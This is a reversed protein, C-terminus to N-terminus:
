VYLAKLPVTTWRSMTSLAEGGWLLILPTTSGRRGPWILLFYFRGGGTLQPSSTLGSWRFSPAGLFSAYDWDGRNQPPTPFYNGGAARTLHHPHNYFEGWLSQPPTIHFGGRKFLIPPHPVGLGRYSQPNFFRGGKLHPIYVGGGEQYSSHMFPSFSTLVLIEVWNNDLPSIQVMSHPKPCVCVCGMRVCVYVM